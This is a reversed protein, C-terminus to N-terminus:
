SRRMTKQNWPVIFIKTQGISKIKHMPLQFLRVFIATSVGSKNAVQGHIRSVGNAIKSLRLAVLTHNFEEGEIKAM